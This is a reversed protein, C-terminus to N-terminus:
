FQINGLFGYMRTFFKTALEINKQYYKGYQNIEKALKLFRDRDGESRAYIIKAYKISAAPLVWYENLISVKEWFEWTNGHMDCPIGNFTFEIDVKKGDEIIAFFELDSDDEFDNKKSRSGYMAIIAISNGYRKIAIEKLIDTLKGVYPTLNFRIDSM